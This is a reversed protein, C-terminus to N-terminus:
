YNYKLILNYAHSCLVNNIILLHLLINFLKLLHAHLQAHSDGNLLSVIKDSITLINYIYLRYLRAFRSPSRQNNKLENHDLM